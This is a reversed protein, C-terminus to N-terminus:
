SVLVEPNVVATPSITLFTSDHAGLSKATFSTTFHGLDQQTWVDYVQLLALPMAGRTNSVPISPKNHLFKNLRLSISLRVKCTTCKVGPIDSFNVTLDASTADHNMLLVATSAGFPALPKYFYQWKPALASEQRFSAPLELGRIPHGSKGVPEM